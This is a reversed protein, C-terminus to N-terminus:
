SSSIYIVRMRCQWLDYISPAYIAVTFMTFGIRFLRFLWYMCLRVLIPLRYSSMRSLAGNPKSKWGPCATNYSGLLSSWPMWAMWALLWLYHCTFIIESPMEYWQVKNRHLNLLFTVTYYIINNAVQKIVSIHVSTNWKGDQCLNRVTNVYQELVSAM